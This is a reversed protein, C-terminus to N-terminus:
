YLSSSENLPSCNNNLRSAISNNFMKMTVIEMIVRKTHFNRPLFKTRVKFIILRQLQCIIFISLSTCYLQLVCRETYRKIIALFLQLWVFCFYGCLIKGRYFQERVMIVITLFIKSAFNM